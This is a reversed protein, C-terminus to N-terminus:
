VFRYASSCERAKGRFDMGAFVGSSLSAKKASSAVKRASEFDAQLLPKVRRLLDLVQEM